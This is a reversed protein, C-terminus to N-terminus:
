RSSEELGILDAMTDIDPNDGPVDLTVTEFSGSDPLAAFGQDGQLRQSAAWLSRGLIVPHGPADPNAQYRPRVIDTRGTRWCTLLAEIVELRVLPQDGLLILAAEAGDPELAALGLRLSHSLGLEPADNSITTFGAKCALAATEHEGAGVVVHGGDVLGRGRAAEVVDLVYSLLPRRRYLAHLKGGGFRRGVGAALILGSAGSRTM